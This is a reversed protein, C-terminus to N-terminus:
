DHLQYLRGGGVEGKRDPRQRRHDYEIRPSAPTGLNKIQRNVFIELYTIIYKITFTRLTINM